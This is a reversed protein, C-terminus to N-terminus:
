EKEERWAAMLEQHEPVKELFSRRLAPDKIMEAREGLAQHADELVDLFAQKEGSAQLVHIVTQYVRFPFEISTLGYTRVHTLMEDAYVRAKDVEGRTLAIRALGAINEMSAATQGLARRHSIASEYARQAGDHDGTQEMAQALYSLANVQDRRAGIDRLQSVAQELQMQAAKQQGMRLLVNGLDSLAV